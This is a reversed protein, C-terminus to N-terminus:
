NQYAEEDDDGEVGSDNGESYLKLKEQAKAYAIDLSDVPVALMVSNYIVIRTDPLGLDRDLNHIIHYRRLLSLEKRM